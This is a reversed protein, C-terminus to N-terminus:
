GRSQCVNCKQDYITKEKFTADECTDVCKPGDSDDVFREGCSGVCRRFSDSVDLFPKANATGAACSVCSEGNWYPLAENVDICAQCVANETECSPATVAGASDGADELLVLALWHLMQPTTEHAFNACLYPM